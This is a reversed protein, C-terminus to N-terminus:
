SPEFEGLYLEGKERIVEGSLTLSSNMVNGEMANREMGYSYM